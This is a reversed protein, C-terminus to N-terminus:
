GNVKYLQKILNKLLEISMLLAKKRDAASAHHNAVDASLCPQRYITNNTEHYLWWFIQVPHNKSNADPNGNVFGFENLCKHIHNNVPKNYDDLRYYHTRESAPSNTVTKEFQLLNRWVRQINKNGTLLIHNYLDDLQM